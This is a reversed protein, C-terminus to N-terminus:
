YGIKDPLIFCVTSGHSIGISEGLGPAMQVLANQINYELRLKICSPFRYIRKKYRDDM